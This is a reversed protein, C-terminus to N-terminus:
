RVCILNHKLATQSKKTQAEFIEPVASHIHVLNVLFVHKTGRKSLNSHLSWLDTDGPVFGPFSSLWGWQCANYLTCRVSCIVLLLLRSWEMAAPPTVPYRSHVTVPVKPPKRATHTRYFMKLELKIGHQKVLYSMDVFVASKASDTRNM